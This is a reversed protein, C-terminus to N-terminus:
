SPVIRLYRAVLDAAEGRTLTGYPCFRMRPERRCPGIIDLNYVLEIWSTGWWHISIDSFIGQPPPPVFDQGYRHQLMLVVADLRTMNKEPCYLLPNESCAANYSERWLTTAWPTSWSFGGSLPLDGFIQTGPMPPRTLPGYIMRGFLVGAEARLLEQDPCFLAPSESCGGMYGKDFLSQIAMSFPHDPDVDAFHVEEKATQVLAWRSSILEALRFRAKEFDFGREPWAVADKVDAEWLAVPVVADVIDNFESQLGLEAALWLYEYDQMGRRWNKMRISSIPGPLGRNDEKYVLDEGPYFFTGAGNRQFQTTRPNTFVNRRKGDNPLANWYTTMWNFYHDLEYKWGIWPLVRFDVADTDILTSGTAPRFGNYVGWQRGAEQESQVNAGKTSPWASSLTHNASTSWSDVYGQYDPDIWHTVFTPISNGVGPNSHSWDAQAQIAALDSKTSPEDPLLFKNISVNPANEAFWTAWADSGEWWKEKTWEAPYSGYEEPLRGYLGISFVSNGVGEGPGAYNYRETYMVGTLYRSHYRRMQSINRVAQVLNLRHRHAMQHYRTEIAYYEDTDFAVGHRRAIEGPEIAFMNPFHTEDPLVFTYIQLDIPIRQMVVGGVLIKAEGRYLGPPTEKPVYIDVWVGQNANPLIGFPAGGQEPSAAFPILADPVWGEYSKEASAAASWSLGGRSSETINLYHETFLEINKGVYDFPDTSGAGSGALSYTGRALDSITVDVDQVGDVGSQLILQFAVIENRAARLRIRTGDWVSNNASDALPHELDYRLVKEGDDVVWVRVIGAALNQQNPIAISSPGTRGAEVPFFGLFISLLLLKILFMRFVKSGGRRRIFKASRNM